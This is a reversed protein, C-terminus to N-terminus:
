KMEAAFNCIFKYNHLYIKTKITNKRKKDQKFDQPMPLPISIVYACVSSYLLGHM